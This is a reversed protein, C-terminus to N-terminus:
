PRTKMTWVLSPPMFEHFHVSSCLQVQPKNQGPLAKGIASYIIDIKFM